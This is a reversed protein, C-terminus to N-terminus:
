CLCLLWRRDLALCIANSKSLIYFWTLTTRHEDLTWHRTDPTQGADTSM